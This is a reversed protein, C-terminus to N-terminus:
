INSNDKNIYWKDITAEYELIYPNLCYELLVM